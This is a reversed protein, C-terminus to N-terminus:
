AGERERIRARTRAEEWRLLCALDLCRQVAAQDLIRYGGVAREWVEASCLVAVAMATGDGLGDLFTSPVFGPHGYVASEATARCHLEYAAPSNVRDRADSSEGARTGSRARDEADGGSV